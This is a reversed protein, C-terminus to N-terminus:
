RSAKAAEEAVLEKKSLKGILTKPLSTRIEIERPREIKSVRDALFALLTDPTAGSGPRLTVFAKPAQGRYDDPVGIVIAEAVDPHEYLAEEIM